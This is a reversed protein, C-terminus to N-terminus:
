TDLFDWEAGLAWRIASLKGNLMGWEFDDWPGLNDLGVEEETREAAALAGAWVTDLCEDQRYPSRSLQEESVLRIEGADIRSRLNWHRNYWVQRFLLNEAELLEGLRRPEQEYEFEWTAEELAEPDVCKLMEALALSYTSRSGDFLAAIDPHPQREDVGMYSFDHKNHTVFALNEDADAEGVADAYLEILVADAMSNRGKHFPAKRGLARRGARAIVSESAELSQRLSLLQEIRRITGNAAEGMTMMRHDIDDLVELTDSKREGGLESIAGKARKLVGSLKKANDAVVREKNAAFEVKVQEPVALRIADIEILSELAALTPRQRYDTALDLWVCTDVLLILPGTTM